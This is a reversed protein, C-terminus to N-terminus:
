LRLRWLMMNLVIRIGDIVTTGKYEDSYITKIPVETYRLRHRGINAIMESEMSYDACSWRIKRYATSTFARYGCQSDRVKVGYLLAAVRNIFWNGAKLVAPMKTLTRYGLVIDASELGELFEAIEKPEHQGDADMAVLQAAGRELAYDCGTKLAAGKGLNVIHRLVTAGAKEAAAATGDTSGDDVVIVNQAHRKVQKLVDLIRKSENYAPIVVWTSKM